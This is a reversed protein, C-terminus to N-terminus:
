TSYLFDRNHANKHQAFESKETYICIKPQLTFFNDIVVLFYDLHNINLLFLM